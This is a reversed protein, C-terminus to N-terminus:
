FIWKLAINWFCISTRNFGPTKSKSKAEIEGGGLGPKVDWFAGADFFVFCSELFGSNSWIQDMECDKGSFCKKTDVLVSVAFRVSVNGQFSSYPVTPIGPRGIWRLLLGGRSVEKDTCGAVGVSCSDEAAFERLRSSVLTGGSDQRM